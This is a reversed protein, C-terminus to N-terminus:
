GEDNLIAEYFGISIEAFRLIATELDEIERLSSQHRDNLTM